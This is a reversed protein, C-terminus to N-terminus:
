MERTSFLYKERKFMGSKNESIRNKKKLNPKETVHINFNSRVKTFLYYEFKIIYYLYNLLESDYLKKNKKM